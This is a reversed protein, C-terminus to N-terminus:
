QEKEEGWWTQLFEKVGTPKVDVDLNSDFAFRGQILALSVQPVFNTLASPPNPTIRQRLEEEPQYTVKFKKGTTHM